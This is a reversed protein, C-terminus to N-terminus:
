GGTLWPGILDLPMGLGYRFIVLCFGTLGIALGAVTWLTTERTAYAAIVISGALAPLLGLNRIAIGFFVMAATILILGRWSITGWPEDRGKLAKFAIVLGFGVLVLGLVFPFYGEGMRFARGIKLGFWSYTSFSFGTVVFIAAAILDKKNVSV